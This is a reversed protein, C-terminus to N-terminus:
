EEPPKPLLEEFAALLMRVETGNVEITKQYGSDVEQAERHLRHLLGRLAEEHWQEM